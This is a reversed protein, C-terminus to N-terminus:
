IEDDSLPVIGRVGVNAKREKRKAALIVSVAKEVDANGHVKFRSYGQWGDPISIGQKGFWNSNGRVSINLTRVRPQVEIAWFNDPTEKFLRGSTYKLDGPCVERIRRLIQEGAAKLTPVQELYKLFKQDGDPLRQKGAATEPQYGGDVVFLRSTNGINLLCASHPAFALTRHTDDYEADHVLLISSYGRSSLPSGFTQLDAASSRTEWIGAEPRSVGTITMQVGM